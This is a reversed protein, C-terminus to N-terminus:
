SEAALGDVPARSDGAVTVELPVFRGVFGPIGPLAVRVEVEATVNSGLSLCPSATCGIQLTADDTAFGFDRVTVGVVAHARAAGAEVAATRSAGSEIQHVGEVVVVRAADHAAAEAAFIGAQIRAATVVLYVVPVLLLLTVAIFEVIAGGTDDSLNRRRPSSTDGM